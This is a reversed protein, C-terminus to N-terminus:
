CYWCSREKSLRRCPTPASQEPQGSESSVIHRGIVALMERDKTKRAKNRLCRRLKQRDHETKADFAKIARKLRPATSAREVQRLSGQNSSM